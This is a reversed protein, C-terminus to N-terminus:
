VVPMIATNTLWEGSEHVLMTEVSFGTVKANSDSEPLTAGQVIALGNKALVPRSKEIIADLSTYSSRFDPNTSDKAVGRLESQAAALAAALKAITESQKM